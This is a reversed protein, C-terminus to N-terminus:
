STYKDVLNTKNLNEIKKPLKVNKQKNANFRKKKKNEEKEVSNM